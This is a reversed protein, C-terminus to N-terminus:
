HNICRKIIEKNCIDDNFIENKESKQQRMEVCLRTKKKEFVNKMKMIWEYM